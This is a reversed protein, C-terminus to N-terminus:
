PHYRQMEELTPEDAAPVAAPAAPVKEARQARKAQAPASTGGSASVATVRVPSKIGNKVRKAGDAAAAAGSFVLVAVTAGVIVAQKM